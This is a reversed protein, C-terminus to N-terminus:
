RTKGKEPELGAAMLIKDGFNLISRRRSSFSSIGTPHMGPTGECAEKGTYQYVPCKGCIARDNVVRVYTKCLVCNGSHIAKDDWSKAAKWVRMGKRLLTEQKGDLEFPKSM